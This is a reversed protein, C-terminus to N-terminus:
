GALVELALLSRLADDFFVKVAKLRSVVSMAQMKASIYGVPVYSCFVVVELFSYFAQLIKCLWRPLATTELM